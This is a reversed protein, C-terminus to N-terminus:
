TVPFFKISFINKIVSQSVQEMHKHFEVQKKLKEIEALLAAIRDELDQNFLRSILINVYNWTHM